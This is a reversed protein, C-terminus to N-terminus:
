RRGSTLSFPFVLDVYIVFTSLVSGGYWINLVVGLEVVGDVCRCITAAADGVDRIINDECEMGAIAYSQPPLFISVGCVIDPM